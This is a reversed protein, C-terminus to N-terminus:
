STHHEASSLPITSLLALLYLMSPSSTYLIIRLVIPMSSLILHHSVKSTNKLHNQQQLQVQLACRPPKVILNTANTQHQKRLCNSSNTQPTMDTPRLCPMCLHPSPLRTSWTLSLMLFYILFTFTNCHCQGCSPMGVHCTVHTNGFTSFALPLLISQILRCMAKTYILNGPEQSTFCWSVSVKSQSDKATKPLRQNDKSIIPHVKSDLIKYLTLLGYKRNKYIFYKHKGLITYKIKMKCIFVWVLLCKIIYNM